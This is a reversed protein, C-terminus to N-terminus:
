RCPEPYIRPCRTEVPPPLSPHEQIRPRRHSLVNQKWLAPPRGVGHPLAAEPEVDDGPRQPRKRKGVLQLARDAGVRVPQNELTRAFAARSPEALLHVARGTIRQVGAQPCVAGRGMGVVSPHPDRHIHERRRDGPELGLDQLRERTMPMRFAQLESGVHDDIAAATRSGQESSVAGGADTTDVHQRTAGDRDAELGPGSGRHDEYFPRAVLGVSDEVRYQEAEGESVEGPRHM